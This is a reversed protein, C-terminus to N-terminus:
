EKVESHIYEARGDVTILYILDSPSMEREEHKDALCSILQQSSAFGSYHM